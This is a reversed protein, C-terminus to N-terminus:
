EASRDRFGTLHEGDTQVVAPVGPLRGAPLTTAPAWAVFERWNGYVAWPDPGFRGRGAEEVDVAGTATVLALRGVLNAVRM